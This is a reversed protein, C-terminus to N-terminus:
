EKDDRISAITMGSDVVPNTTVLGRRNFAPLIAGHLTKIHLTIKILLYEVYKIAVIYFTNKLCALSLVYM